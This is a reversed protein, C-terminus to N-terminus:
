KWAADMAAQNARYFAVREAPDTIAKYQELISAKSPEAAKDKDAAPIGEPKVGLGALTETVRAKEDALAKELSTIKVAQPELQAQLGKITEYRQAVLGNATALSAELESVRGALRATEKQETSEAKDFYSVARSIFENLTM